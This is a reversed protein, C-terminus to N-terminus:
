RMVERTERRLRASYMRHDSQDKGDEKACGRGDGFRDPDLVQDLEVAHAAMASSATLILALLFRIM